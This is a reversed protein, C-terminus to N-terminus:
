VLELVEFDSSEPLFLFVPVGFEQALLVLPNELVQGAEDLDSPMLWLWLAHAGLLATPPMEDRKILRAVREEPTYGAGGYIEVSHGYHPALSEIFYEPGAIMGSVRFLHQKFNPGCAQLDGVLVHLEAFDAQSCRLRPGVLVIVPSAHEELPACIRDRTTPSSSISQM